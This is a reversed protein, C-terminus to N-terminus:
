KPKILLREVESQVSRMFVDEYSEAQGELTFNDLVRKRGAKAKKMNFTDTSNTASQKQLDLSIAVTSSAELQTMIMETLPAQDVTVVPTGSLLKSHFSDKVKTIPHFVVLDTLSINPSTKFSMASKIFLENVGLEEAIKLLKKKM